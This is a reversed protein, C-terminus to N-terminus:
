SLTRKIQRLSINLQLSTWKTANKKLYTLGIFSCEGQNRHSQRSTYVLLFDKIIWKNESLEVSHYCNSRSECFWDIPVWLEVVKALTFISYFIINLDNRRSFASTFIFLMALFAPLHDKVAMRKRWMHILHLLIM